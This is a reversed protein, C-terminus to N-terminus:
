CTKHISDAHGNVSIEVNRGQLCLINYRRGPRQAAWFSRVAIRSIYNNFILIHQIKLM